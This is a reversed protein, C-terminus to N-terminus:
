ERERWNKSAQDIAINLNFPDLGALTKIENVESADIKNDKLISEIKKSGKEDVDSTKDGDQDNDLLNKGDTNPIENENKDDADQDDPPMEMEIAAVSGPNEIVDVENESSNYPDKETTKEQNDILESNYGGGMKNLFADNSM